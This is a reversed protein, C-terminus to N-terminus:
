QGICKRNKFFTLTGHWTDLHVGIISGQGFRSSFKLKDGKHHLLGPFCSGDCKGKFTELLCINGSLVISSVLTPSGGATQMKGWCVASRTGTSTWISMLHELALWRDLFLLKLVFWSKNLMRNKNERTTISLDQLSVMDTGYVPSTMKIEWFHQGDALERSGRVAATGCSYDSHFSVKRNDCTLLTATSRSSADWVWDFDAVDSTM